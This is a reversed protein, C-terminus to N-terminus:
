TSAPHHNKKRIVASHEIAKLYYPLDEEELFLDSRKGKLKFAKNMMVYKLIIPRQYKGEDILQERFMDFLRRSRNLDLVAEHSMNCLINFPNIYHEGEQDHLVFLYYCYDTVILVNVIELRKDVLVEAHWHILMNSTKIKMLYQEFQGELREMRQMAEYEVVENESFPLRDYLFEYVKLRDPKNRM